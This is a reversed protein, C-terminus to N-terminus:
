FEHGVVHTISKINNKLASQSYHHPRDPIKQQDNPINKLNNQIRRYHEAFYEQITTTFGLKKLIHANTHMRTSTHCLM